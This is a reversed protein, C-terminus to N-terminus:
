AEGGPALMRWASNVDLVVAAVRDAEPRDKVGVRVKARGFGAPSGLCLDGVRLASTSV